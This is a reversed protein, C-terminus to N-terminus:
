RNSSFSTVESYKGHLWFKLGKYSHWVYHYWPHLWLLKLKYVIM